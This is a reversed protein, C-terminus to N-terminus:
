HAAALWVAMRQMNCSAALDRTSEVVALSLANRGLRGNVSSVISRKALVVDRQTPKTKQRTAPLLKEFAVKAGPVM